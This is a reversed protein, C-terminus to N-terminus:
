NTIFSPLTGIFPECYQYSYMHVIKSLVIYRDCAISEFEAIFPEKCIDTDDDWFWCWEGPQPKWLKYTFQDKDFIFEGVDYYNESISIIQKTVNDEIRTVWDGVKFKPKEPKIRYNKVPYHFTPESVDDWRNHYSILPNYQIIKGEALAKRFEVYEDAIIIAKIQSPVEWEFTNYAPQQLYWGSKIFLVEIKGDNLWHNFEVKYKKILEKNM